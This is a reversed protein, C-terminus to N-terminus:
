DLHKDRLEDTTYTEEEGISKLVDITKEAEERVKPKLEVRSM